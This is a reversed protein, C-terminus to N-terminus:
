ELASANGDAPWSEALASARASLDALSGTGAGVALGVVFTSLPAAPRAVGHAIDRALDLIEGVPVTAPDIGLDASLTALWRDLTEPSQQDNV